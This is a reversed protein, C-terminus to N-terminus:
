NVCIDCILQQVEDRDLICEAQGDRVKILDALVSGLSATTQSVSTVWEKTVLDTSLGKCANYKSRLVRINQGTVSWPNCAAMRAATKILSSNHCNLSNFFRIFRKEIQLELPMCESINVLINKHTM